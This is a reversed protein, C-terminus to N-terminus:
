HIFTEGQMAFRINLSNNTFTTLLPQLIRNLFVSVRNFLEVLGASTYSVM